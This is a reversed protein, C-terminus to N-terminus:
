HKVKDRTAEFEPSDPKITRFPLRILLRSCGISTALTSLEQPNPSLKTRLCAAVVRFRYSGLPLETFLYNGSGGSIM